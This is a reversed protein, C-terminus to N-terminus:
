ILTDIDGDGFTVGYKKSPLWSIIYNWNNLTNKILPPDLKKWSGELKREIATLEFHCMAIGMDIRQLPFCTGQNTPKHEQMYFHFMDAVKVIRWPQKNCASPAMRLMELPLAYEGANDDSMSELPDNHFFLEKWPKRTNSKAGWKMTQSLISEKNAPYGIPTIAPAIDDANVKLQMDLHKRNFTGGLWCTGLGIETAFLILNEFAYGLQELDFDHKKVICVIFNQAGRIVGYTGIKQIMNKQDYNKHFSIFEFRLPSSFPSSIASSYNNLLNLDKDDIAKSLYTRTSKRQKIIESTKM